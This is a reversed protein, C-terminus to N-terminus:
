HVVILTRTSVDLGNCLRLLYVGSAVPNGEDTLGSWETTYDGPTLQEDVLTALKKGTIDYVALELKNGSHAEGMIYGITTSTTFPNPFNSTIESHSVGALSQSITISCLNSTEVEAGNMVATIRYFYRGTETLQNDLYSATLSSLEGLTSFNGPSDQFSREIRYSHADTLMNWSLKVAKGDFGIDLHLQKGTPTLSLATGNRDNTGHFTNWGSFQHVADLDYMWLLGADSVVMLEEYGDGDLDGITPTSTFPGPSLKQPYSFTDTGDAEIGLLEGNYSIALIELRSDQDLNGLVPSSIIPSDTERKAIIRGQGNVVFLGGSASSTMGTGIVIELYGDGNVDGLAPSSVIGGNAYGEGLVVPFGSLKKGSSDLGYLRGDLSGVFVELQGDGNVDGLTVSSQIPGATFFEWLPHDPESLRYAYINGSTTGFVVELEGDNNIDAIAPTSVVDENPALHIVKGGGAKLVAVGRGTTGCAIVWEGQKNLALAPASRFVPADLDFQELRSPGSKVNLIYLIGEDGAYVVEQCGDGDLDAASPTSTEGSNDVSNNAIVGEAFSSGNVRLLHLQDDWSIAAIEMVGNGDLDEVLPSSFYVAGLNLPYGPAVSLSYAPVILLLYVVPFQVPILWASKRITPM